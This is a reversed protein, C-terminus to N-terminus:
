HAIREDIQLDQELDDEIELMFGKDNRSVFKDKADPKFTVFGGWVVLNSGTWVMSHGYRQKVKTKIKIRSWKRERPSYFLGSRFVRNQDAGGFVVMKEGAWVAAHHMRGLPDKGNDTLKSWSNSAFNYSWGDSIARIDNLDSQGGWIIMSDDSVVSTFSIRAKVEPNVKMQSWNSEKPDYIWGTNLTGSENMGGWIYIKGKFTRATAYARPELNDPLGTIAEWSNKKLDYAFAGNSFEKEDYGGFVFMKGGVWAASHGSRPTPASEEAVETWSATNYDYVFGNSLPMSNIVDYGGWLILKDGTWVSSQHRSSIDGSFPSEIPRWLNSEPFFVGGVSSTGAMTERRDGGMVIMSEGTWHAHHFSRVAPSSYGAVASVEYAKKKQAKLEFKGRNGSSVCSLSIVSLAIIKLM